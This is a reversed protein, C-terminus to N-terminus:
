NFFSFGLTNNVANTAKSLPKIGLADITSRNNYEKAGGPTFFNKVRYLKEQAKSKMANGKAKLGAKIAQNEANRFQENGRMTSHINLLANNSGIDKHLFWSLGQSVAGGIGKGEALSQKTVGVISGCQDVIEGFVSKAADVCNDYYGHQIKVKRGTFSLVRKFWSTQSDVKKQFEQVKKEGVTQKMHALLKQDKNLEGLIKQAIGPATTAMRIAVEMGVAITCASAGTKLFGSLKDMAQQFAGPDKNQEARTVEAMYKEYEANYKKFDLANIQKNRLSPDKACAQKYLEFAEKEAKTFTAQVFLSRISNIINGIFRMLADIANSIAQLIGGGAQQNTQLKVDTAVNSAEFLEEYSSIIEIQNEFMEVEIMYFDFESIIYTDM